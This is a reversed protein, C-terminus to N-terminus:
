NEKILTKYNEDYLDKVERTLNIGLNPNKPQQKPTIKFSTVNEKCERESKKNNTYIFAVLKQINIKYGALTSFENVLDLLTQTADNPNERYLIMDDAYLPLKVEEGEM